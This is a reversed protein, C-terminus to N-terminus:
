ACGRRCVAGCPGKREPGGVVAAGPSASERPPFGFGQGFQGGAAGGCQAAVHALAVGAAPLLDGVVGAAVPVTGLALSRGAGGPQCRAAGLEQRNRVEVEHEGQRVLQRGQRQDVRLRIVSGATSNRRRNKSCTSGLPNTRIRWKPKPALQWRRACSSRQRWNSLTAEGSVDAATTDASTDRSGGGAAGVGSAGTQAWQPGPRHTSTSCKGPGARPSNAPRTLSKSAGTGGIGKQSLEQPSQTVSSKLGGVGNRDRQSASRPGARRM